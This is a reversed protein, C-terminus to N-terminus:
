RGRKRRVARPPPTAAEGPLEVSSPAAQRERAVLPVLEAAGEAILAHAAEGDLEVRAGKEYFREATHKSQFDRLFRVLM